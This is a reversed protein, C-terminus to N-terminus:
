QISFKILWHLYISCSVLFSLSSKISLSFFLMAHCPMAFIYVTFIVDGGFLIGTISCVLLLSYHPIIELWWVIRSTKLYWGFIASNRLKLQHWLFFTTFFFFCISTSQEQKNAVNSPSIFWNMSLSAFQIMSESQMKSVIYRLAPM